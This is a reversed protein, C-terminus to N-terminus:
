QGATVLDRYLRWCWEGPRQEPTNDTVKFCDGNHDVFAIRRGGNNEFWAIDAPKIEPPLALFMALFLYTM